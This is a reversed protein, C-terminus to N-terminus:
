SALSSLYKQTPRLFIRQREPVEKTEGTAEDQVVKAPITKSKVKVISSVFGEGKLGSDVLGMLVTDVVKRAKGVPIEYEAAIKEVLEKKTMM